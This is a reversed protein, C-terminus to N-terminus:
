RVRASPLHAHPIEQHVHALRRLALVSWGTVYLELFCGPSTGGLTIKLRVFGLPPVAGGDGGYGNNTATTVLSLGNLEPNVNKALFTRNNGSHEIQVSLTPSTGVVNDAVAHFAIANVSGLMENLSPSTYYTTSSGAVYDRFVRENFVQRM